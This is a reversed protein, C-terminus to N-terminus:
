SLVTVTVTFTKTLGTASTVVFAVPNTFDNQTTGSVQATTSVKVTCGTNVTWSAVLATVVTAAPVSIAIAGTSYNITGTRDGGSFAANLSDIFKFTLLNVMGNLQDLSLAVQYTVKKFANPYCEIWSKTADTSDAWGYAIKDASISITTAYDEVVADVKKKLVPLSVEKDDGGWYTEITAYTEDIKYEHSSERRDLHNKTYKFVSDTSDAKIEGIRNTNFLYSGTKKTDRDLSKQTGKFITM